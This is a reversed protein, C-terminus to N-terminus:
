VVAYLRFLHDFVKGVRTMMLLWQRGCGPPPSTTLDYRLVLVASPAGLSDNPLGRHLLRSDLVLADGAAWSKGTEATLVAGHTSCLAKLSKRLRDRLSLSSDHWHHSGPLLAQPGRQTDIDSLPVFVTLGPGGVSDLHWGQAEACPDAVILQAESLFVKRGAAQEERFFSHVLPAVASHMAVAHPEFEPSGRLLCHLRGFTYRGMAINPDRQQLWRGVETAKRSNAGAGLGLAGRM